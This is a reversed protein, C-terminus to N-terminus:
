SINEVLQFITRCSPKDQRPIANQDIIISFHTPPFYKNNGICIELIYESHKSFKIKANVVISNHFHKESLTQSILV